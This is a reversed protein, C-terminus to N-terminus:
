LKVRVTGIPELIIAVKELKKVLDATSMDQTVALSVHGPRDKIFKLGAPLAVYEDVAYIDIDTHFRAKSKIIAKLKRMNTAFSLGKTLDKNVRTRDQSLNFDAPTVSGQTLTRHGGPDAIRVFKKLEIIVNRLDEMTVLEM